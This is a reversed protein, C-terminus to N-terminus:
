GGTGDAAAGVVCGGLVITVDVGDLHIPMADAIREQDIPDGRLEVAAVLSGFYSNVGSVVGGAGTVISVAAAVTLIPGM